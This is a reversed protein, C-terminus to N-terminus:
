LKLKLANKLRHTYETLKTFHLKTFLCHHLSTPTRENESDNEKQRGSSHSLHMMGKQNIEKELLLSFEGLSEDSRVCIM